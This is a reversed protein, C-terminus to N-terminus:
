ILGSLVKLIISESDMLLTKKMKIVIKESLDDKENNNSSIAGALAYPSGRVLRSNYAVASGNTM